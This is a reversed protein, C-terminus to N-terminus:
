ECHKYLMKAAERSKMGAARQWANCAAKSNNLHHQCNGYNTWAHASKPDIDLAMSYDDAAFRYSELLFYIDGREIFYQPNSSNKSILVNLNILAQRYDQDNTLIQTKLYNAKEDEPFFDLYINIYKEAEDLRDSKFLLSAHNFIYEPNYSDAMMLSISSIIAQEFNKNELQIKMKMELASINAANRELLLNLYRISEDFNNLKFYIEAFYFYIRDKSSSNNLLELISLADNLKNQDILYAVEELKLETNSYRRESWFEKWEQSKQIVEFETYSIIESYYIPNKLEFYKSLYFVSEEPFGLGAYIRALEFFAKQPANAQLKKYVDVSKLVEGNQYYLDALLFMCRDFEPKQKLVTIASDQKQNNIYNLADFYTDRDSSQAIMNISLVLLLVIHLVKKIM